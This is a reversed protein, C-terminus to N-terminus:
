ICNGEAKGNNGNPDLEIVAVELYFQGQKPSDLGLMHKPLIAAKKKKLLSTFILPSVIQYFNFVAM